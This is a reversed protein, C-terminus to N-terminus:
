YELPEYFAVQRDALLPHIRARAVAEYHPSSLHADLEEQAQYIEHLVFEGPEDRNRYVTFGACGPEARVIPAYERLRQAVEEETGPRALYRGVVAIM